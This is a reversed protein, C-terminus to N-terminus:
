DLMVRQLLAETRKEVDQASPRRSPDHDWMEEVLDRFREMTEVDLPLKEETQDPRVPRKGERLATAAALETRMDPFPVKGTWASALVLAESYMDTERTTRFKEDVGSLLEPALFRQHGGPHLISLTRTVEHRIRSLGFDCLVAEGTETLLVNGKPLFLICSNM